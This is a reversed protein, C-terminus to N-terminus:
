NRDILLCDLLGLYLNEVRQLVCERTVKPDNQIFEFVELVNVFQDKLALVSIFLDNM